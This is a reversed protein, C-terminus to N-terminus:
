EVQGCYRCPGYGGQEARHRTVPEVRRASLLGQCQQRTHWKKGFPTVYVRAWGPRANGTREPEPEPGPDEEPPSAGGAAEAEPETQEGFVKAWLFQVLLTGVIGAMVGVVLTFVMVQFLSIGMIEDTGRPCVIDSVKEPWM